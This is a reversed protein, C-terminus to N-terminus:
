GLDRYIERLGDLRFSDLFTKVLDSQFTNIFKLLYWFPTRPDQVLGFSGERIRLDTFFIIKVSIQSERGEEPEGGRGLVFNSNRPTKLFALYIEAYDYHM